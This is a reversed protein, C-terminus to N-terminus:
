RQNANLEVARGILVVAEEGAPGIDIFIGTRWSTGDM